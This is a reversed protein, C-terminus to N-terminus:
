QTKSNESKKNKELKMLIIMDNPAVGGYPGPANNAGGFWPNIRRSYTPNKRLNVTVSSSTNEDLNQFNVLWQKEGKRIFDIRLAQFPKARLLVDKGEYGWFREYNLHYYVTLDLYESESVPNRWAWMLADKENRKWDLSLGGGKSWDLQDLDGKM